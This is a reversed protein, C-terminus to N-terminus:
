LIQTFKQEQLNSQFNFLMFSICFFVDMGKYKNGIFITFDHMFTFTYNRKKDHVFVLFFGRQKWVFLRILVIFHSFRFFEFLFYKKSTLPM